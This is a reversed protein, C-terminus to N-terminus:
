ACSPDSAHGSAIPPLVRMWQDLGKGTKGGDWTQRCRGTDKSSQRSDEEVERAFRSSDHNSACAIRKGSSGGVLDGIEVPPVLRVIRVEGDDRSIAYMELDM